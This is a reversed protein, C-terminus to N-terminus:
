MRGRNLIDCVIVICPTHIFSQESFCNETYSIDSCCDGDTYCDSYCNCGANFNYCDLASECEDCNTLGATVCPASYLFLSLSHTHSLTHSPVLNQGLNSVKM